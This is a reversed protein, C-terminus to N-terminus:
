LFFLPRRCFRVSLEWFMLWVAALGIGFFAWFRDGHLRGQQDLQTTSM